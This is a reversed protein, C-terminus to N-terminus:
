RYCALMETEVFKVVEVESVFFIRVAIDHLDFKPHLDFVLHNGAILIDVLRGFHRQYQTYWQRNEKVTTKFAAHQTLSWRKISMCM